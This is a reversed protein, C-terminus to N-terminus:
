GGNGGGGQETALARVVATNAERWATDIDDKSEEIAMDLTEWGRAAHVHWQKKGQVCEAYSVSTGTSADLNMVQGELGHDIHRVESTWKQGLFESTGRPGGRRKRALKYGVVGSGTRVIRSSRVEGLSKLPSDGLSSMRKVPYWWGRHREYYGMARHNKLSMRGPQNGETSPPYPKVRGLIVNVSKDMATEALPLVIQPAQDYVAELEALGQVEIVNVDDDFM